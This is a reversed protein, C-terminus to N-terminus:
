EMDYYLVWEQASGDYFKVNEYGLMQTLVYWWSSAYGGVGCYVIIEQDKGEGIVDSAMAKLMEVSKYTNDDNWIQPAPLSRATPIHGPKDAFPEIIEGSYVEADRCDVIVSKGIKGYVYDKSVFMNKDTKGSYTISKVEPVVTTVPRNEALWKPYGGDLIAVNKIGAYILTDAVRDAEATGYAAPLPPEAATGALVVFSTGTIGCSGITNFLAGDEPLEMFIDGWTWFSDAPINIANAIHGKQYDGEARLDLIVLNELGAREQLWEGSVIPPIKRETARNIFINQATEDWLVNDGLAEGAFRLPIYTRNGIFQAPVDLDKEVNDILAKNSDITIRVVTGDRAGVATRTEPEWNVIAGLAEFLARMPVLTRNEVVTPPLDFEFTGGDIVIEVAFVVGPIFLSLAILVVWFVMKEM